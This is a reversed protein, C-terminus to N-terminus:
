VRVRGPGHQRQFVIIAALAGEPKHHLVALGAMIM